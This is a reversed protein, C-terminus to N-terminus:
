LTSFLARVKFHITGGGVIWSQIWPHLALEQYLKMDRTQYALKLLSMSIMVLFHLLDVLLLKPIIVFVKNVNIDPM